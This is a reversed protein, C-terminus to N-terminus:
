KAALGFLKNGVGTRDLLSFLLLGLVMCSLAQGAAISAANLAFVAPGGNELWTLELGIVLANVLVPPLTSAVPLGKWRVKRLMWSMWAAIGTAFTGFFIDLVLPNQGTLFGVLNSLACGLTLGVGALPSYVALVTLAEAARVQVVGYSLPALALCLATYLAMIMAGVTITRTNITKSM